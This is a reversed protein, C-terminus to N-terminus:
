YSSFNTAESLKFSFWVVITILTRSTLSRGGTKGCVKYSRLRLSSIAVGKVMICTAIENVCNDWVCFMYIYTYICLCVIYRITHEIIDYQLYRLCSNYIIYVSLFALYAPSLYLLKTESIFYNTLWLFYPCLFNLM